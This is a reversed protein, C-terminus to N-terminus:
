TNSVFMESPRRHNLPLTDAECNFPQTDSEGDSLSDGYRGKHLITRRLQRRGSVATALIILFLKKACRMSNIINLPINETLAMCLHLLLCVKPSAFFKQGFKRLSARFSIVEFFSFVSCNVPRLASWAGNKGLNSGINGLNRWVHGFVVLNYFFTKVKIKHAMITYYVRMCCNQSLNVCKKGLNWWM